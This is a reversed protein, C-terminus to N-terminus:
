PIRRPWLGPARLLSKRQTGARRAGHRLAAAALAHFETLVDDPTRQHTLWNFSLWVHAPTTVEYGHRVDKAELCVPAPSIEGHAEDCLASNTEMARMIEAGILHASVGDFAYGPM